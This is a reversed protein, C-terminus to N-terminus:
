SVFRNIKKLIIKATKLLCLFNFRKEIRHDLNNCTEALISVISTETRILNSKMKKTVSTAILYAIGVWELWYWQEKQVIFVIM